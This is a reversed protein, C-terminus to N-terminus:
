IQVVNNQWPLSGENVFYTAFEDRTHRASHAHNNAHQNPLGILGAPPNHHWPAPTVTGDPLELDYLSPPAYVHTSSPSEKLFNHLACTALVVSVVKDPQLPIPKEYIRFRSVLIGFANEVVRRARSLRYNFIRQQNGLCSGPYPKLLYPRLPFAADAVIVHPVPLERGPLPKSAPMPFSNTELVRSLSSNRFIGGDSLRGQCGVDVYLFKYNADVMALLVISFTHKYNYYISGSFNPARIIVHKGDLAGVCNPFQWKRLFAGAIEEWEEISGPVQL